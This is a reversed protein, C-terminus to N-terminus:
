GPWRPDAAPDFAELAATEAIGALESEILDSAARIAKVLEWAQDIATREALEPATLEQDREIPTGLLEVRRGIANMQRWLPGISAEIRRTAEAKVRARAATRERALPDYADVWAQAAAAAAEDATEVWHGQDDRWAQWGADRAAILVDPKHGAVTLPFAPM